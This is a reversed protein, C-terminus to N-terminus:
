GSKGVLARGPETAQHNHFTVVDARETPCHQSHVLDIDDLQALARNAGAFLQAIRAHKGRCYGAPEIMKFDLGVSELDSEKEQCVVTVKVGGALLGEVVEHAYLELGGHGSFQRVLM